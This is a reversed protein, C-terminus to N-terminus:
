PVADAEKRVVVIGSSEKDGYQALYPIKRSRCGVVVLLLYFALVVRTEAPDTTGEHCRDRWMVPEVWYARVWEVTVMVIVVVLTRRLRVVVNAAAAPALGERDRRRQGFVERSRGFGVLEVDHVRTM